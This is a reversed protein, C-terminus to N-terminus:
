RYHGTFTFWLADLFDIWRDRITRKRNSYVAFPM